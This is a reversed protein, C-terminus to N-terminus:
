TSLRVCNNFQLRSTETIGLLSWNNSSNGYTQNEIPVFTFRQPGPFSFTMLTTIPPLCPFVRTTLTLHFTWTASSPPLLIPSFLASFQVSLLYSCAGCIWFFSFRAIEKDMQLVLLSPPNHTLLCLSLFYLALFNNQHNTPLFYLNPLSM